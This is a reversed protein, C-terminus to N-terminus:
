LAELEPRLAALAAELAALSSPVDELDQTRGLTELRLAAEFASKAGFNAVSGKLGHATNQILGADRRNAAERLEGLWAEYNELFLVAIERLLEADGGVRTLAVERDLVPEKTPHNM